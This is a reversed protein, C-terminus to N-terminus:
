WVGAFASGGCAWGSGQATSGSRFYSTLSAGGGTGHYVRMTNNSLVCAYLDPHSDGDFDGAGMVKLGNWGQNIVDYGGSFGAVGNGHYLRLEGTSDLRALLDPQGPTRILNSATVNYDFDGPAILTLGNMGTRLTIANTELGGAGNGRYLLLAGDVTRAIVDPYGDGDWDGPALLTNYVTPGWGTRIITGTGAQFGGAGNGQFFRINGSSDRGLLDADGDSDFDGVPLLTDYAGWGSSGIIQGSGVAFGDQGDGRYIRLSDEGPRRALLDPKGMSTLQNPEAASFDSFTRKSMGAMVNKILNTMVRTESADQILSQGFTISGAM